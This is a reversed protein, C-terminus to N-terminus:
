LIYIGDPMYGFRNPMNTSQIIGSVILYNQLVNIQQTFLYCIIYICLSCKIMDHFTTEYM